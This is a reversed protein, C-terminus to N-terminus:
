SSSHQTVVHLLVQQVKRQALVRRRWLVAVVVLVLGLFCGTTALAIVLVSPGGSASAASQLPPLLAAIYQQAEGSMASVLRAGESTRLAGAVASWVDASRFDGGSTRATFSLPWMQGFDHLGVSMQVEPPMHPQAALMIEFFSHDDTVLMWACMTLRLVVLEEPTFGFLTALNLVNATTGSPAAVTGTAVCTQSLCVCFHPSTCIRSLPHHM